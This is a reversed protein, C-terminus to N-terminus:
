EDNHPAHEHQLDPLAPLAEYGHLVAHHVELLLLPLHSTYYIPLTDHSIHIGSRITVRTHFTYDNHTQM